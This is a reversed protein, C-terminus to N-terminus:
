GRKGSGRLEKLYSFNKKHMEAGLARQQKDSVFLHCNKIDLVIRWPVFSRRHCVAGQPASLLWFYRSVYLFNEPNGKQNIKVDSHLVIQIIQAIIIERRRHTGKAHSLVAQGLCGLTEPGRQCNSKPYLDGWQGLDSTHLGSSKLVGVEWVSNM